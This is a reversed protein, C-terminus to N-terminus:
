KDSFVCSKAAPSDTELHDVPPRKPSKPSPESEVFAGFHIAVQWDDGFDCAYEFTEGVRDIIGHLRPLKTDKWVQIRRQQDHFRLAPRRSRNVHGRRAFAQRLCGRLDGRLRRLLKV